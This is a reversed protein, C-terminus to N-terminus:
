RYYIGNERKTLTMRRVVDVEMEESFFRSFYGAESAFFRVHM